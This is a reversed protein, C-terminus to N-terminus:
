FSATLCAVLNAVAWNGGTSVEELQGVLVRVDRSAEDDGRGTFVRLTHSANGVTAYHFEICVVQPFVARLGVSITATAQSPIHPNSVDMYAYTGSLSSVPPFKASNARDQLVWRFGIRSGASTEYTCSKNDFHCIQTELDRSNCDYNQGPQTAIPVSHQEQSIHASSISGATETIHTNSWLVGVADQKTLYFFLGFMFILLNLM